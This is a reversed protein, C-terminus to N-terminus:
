QNRDLALTRLIFVHFCSLCFDNQPFVTNLFRIIPTFQTKHQFSIGSLLVMVKKRAIFGYNKERTGIGVSTADLVEPLMRDLDWTKEVMNEKQEELAFSKRQLSSQVMTRVSSSFINIHPFHEYPGTNGSGCPILILSVERTSTAVTYM